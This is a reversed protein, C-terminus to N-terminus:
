QWDFMLYFESHVRIKCEHVCDENITRYKRTLIIPATKCKSKSVDMVVILSIGKVLSLDFELTFNNISNKMTLTKSDVKRIPKNIVM